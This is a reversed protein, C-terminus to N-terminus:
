QNSIPPGCVGPTNPNARPPNQPSTIPISISATCRTTSQIIRFHIVASLCSEPGILGGFTSRLRRHRRRFVGRYLPGLFPSLLGLRPQWAIHDTVRCGGDRDEVTREHTWSRLWLSHSRERFGQGPEVGELGFYHWDLPVVGWLRIRSCFLEHGPPLDAITGGAQPFTMTIPWLEDNVGAATSVRAWVAERPAALDSSISFESPV